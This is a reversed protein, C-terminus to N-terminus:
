SEMARGNSRRWSRATTSSSDIGPNPPVSRKPCRANSPLASTSRLRGAGTRSKPGALDMFVRMPRGIKAEAARVNAIMRGWADADDHACNIRIAEVGRQALHLMFVPDEAAESPCTVLLAAARSQSRPGFLRKARARLREEGDFFAKDDAVPQSRGLMAELASRVAALTPLVRSELRGLSSLGLAMLQRQTPRLDHHRLALYAALNEVSPLFEPRIDWQAWSNIHRTAEETVQEILEEIEAHLQALRDM